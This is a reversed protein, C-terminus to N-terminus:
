PLGGTTPSVLIPDSIKKQREAIAAMEPAEIIFLDKVPRIALLKEYFPASNVTAEGWIRPIRLVRALQVLGFVIGSGVGRVRERQGLAHPHLALFDLALHHCWTRRCYALGVPLDHRERRITAVMIFAVECTSDRQVKRQLNALSEAAEGSSAYYRWRKAALRTFEVAERIITTAQRAFPSLSRHYRQIEAKSAFRLLATQLLGGAKVQFPFKNM